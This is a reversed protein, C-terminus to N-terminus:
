CREACVCVCVVCRLAKLHKPTLHLTVRDRLRLRLGGLATFLCADERRGEGEVDGDGGGTGAGGGM